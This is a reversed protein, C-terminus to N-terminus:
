EIPRSNALADFIARLARKNAKTLSDVDPESLMLIKGIAEAHADKKVPSEGTKTVYTKKQYVGERSLKAVISRVSKGLTEALAEVTTGAKYAEVLAATQEPTYNVVKETAMKLKESNVRMPFNQCHRAIGKNNFVSYCM